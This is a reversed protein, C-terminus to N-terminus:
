MYVQNMKNIHAMNMNNYQQLKNPPLPPPKNHPEYEMMHPSHGDPMDELRSLLMKQRRKRKLAKM